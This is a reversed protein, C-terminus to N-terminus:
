VNGMTLQQITKDLNQLMVPKILVSPYKKYKLRFSNKLEEKQYGTDLLIPINQDVKLVQDVMNNATDGITQHHAIIMAFKEPQLRFPKIAQEETSSVMVQFGLKEAITRVLRARQGNSDVLLIYNSGTLTRGQAKAEEPNTWKNINFPHVKSIDLEYVNSSIFADNSADDIRLIFQKNQAIYERIWRRHNYDDGKLVVIKPGASSNVQVSHYILPLYSFRTRVEKYNEQVFEVMFDRSDANQAALFFVCIFFLAKKM